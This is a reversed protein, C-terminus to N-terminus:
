EKGLKKQNYWKNDHFISPPDGYVDGEGITRCEHWNTGTTNPLIHCAGNTRNHSKWVSTNTDLTSGPRFDKPLINRFQVGVWIEDYWPYGMTQNHVFLASREINEGPAITFTEVNLVVPTTLISHNSAIQYDNYDFVAAGGEQQYVTIHRGPTDQNQGQSDDREISDITSYITVTLNNRSDVSTSWHQSITMLVRSANNDTYYGAVKVNADHWYYGWQGTGPADEGIVANQWDKQTDPIAGSTLLTDDGVSSRFDADARWQYLKAM